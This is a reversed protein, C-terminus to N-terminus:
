MLGSFDRFNVNKMTQHRIHRSDQVMKTSPTEKQLIAQALNSDRMTNNYINRTDKAMRTGSNDRLVLSPDIHDDGLGHQNAMNM